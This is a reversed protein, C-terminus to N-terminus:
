RCRAPNVLLRGCVRRVMPGHRTVLAAFAMEGAPDRRSAFQELLMADTMAAVPGSELLARWSRILHSTGTEGM